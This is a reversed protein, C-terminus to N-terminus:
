HVFKKLHTNILKDAAEDPTQLKDGEKFAIFQSVAHFDEEKQSRLEHQMATDIVGPDYSLIRVEPNELALCKTAMELFAKSGCYCSWGYYPNKFAGSSINLISKECNYHKLGKIIGATLVSLSIINVNFHKIVDETRCRHLPGIPFVVAANNILYVADAQPSMVSFIEATLRELHATDSLDYRIFFFQRTLFGPDNRAIGVVINNAGNLLCKAIAKGFGKSVGTIIFYNM